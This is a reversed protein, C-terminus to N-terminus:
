RQQLHTGKPITTPVYKANTLHSLANKPLVSPSVIHHSQTNLLNVVPSRYRSNAGIHRFCLPSATHKALGNFAVIGQTEHTSLSIVINRDEDTQEANGDEEVADHRSWQCIQEVKINTIGHSQAYLAMEPRLLFSYTSSTQNPSAEGM